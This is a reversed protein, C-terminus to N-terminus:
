FSNYDGGARDTATETPLKVGSIAGPLPVSVPVITKLFCRGNFFTYSKCRDDLGCAGACIAASATGSGAPAAPIAYNFFDAGPRDIDVEQRPRLGSTTTLSSPVWTTIKDKLLCVQTSSNSVWARCQTNKICELECAAPTTVNPRTVLDGGPRDTG